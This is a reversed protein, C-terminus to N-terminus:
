SCIEGPNLAQMSRGSNKAEMKHDNTNNNQRSVEARFETAILNLLKANISCRRQTLHQASILSEKYNITPPLTIPM